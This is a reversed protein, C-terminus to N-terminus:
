AKGVPMRCYILGAAVVVLVLLGLIFWVGIEEQGCPVQHLVATNVDIELMDFPM